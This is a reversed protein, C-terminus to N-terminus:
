EDRDRNLMSDIAVAAVLIAGLAISQWESSVRMIILINKVLAMFFVGILAGWITGRGGSLSAGGLIVAAIAQLEAGTGVTASSTAIRSAYTIGAVAAILGMMTFALIRLRAVHIGSLHAAKPNSGIYYYQRFFRTHTMLYHAVVALVCMLWVPGQIGLWEEQGLWTFSEPLFPIGPGGVLLAIGQYIGMTGLTTILANVRFRAVIVGNIAGALGGVALGAVVALPVPWDWSKLLWGTIVGTMSACAGVSLDFVGGVLLMMMGIALIGEFALNRLIANFNDWSRFSVPYLISFLVVIFVTIALLAAERSAVAQRAWERADGRSTGDQTM